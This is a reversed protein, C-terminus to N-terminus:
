RGTEAPPAAFSTDTWINWRSPCGTWRRNWLIRLSHSLNAYGKRLNRWSRWPFSMRCVRWRCPHTVKEFQSLAQGGVRQTPSGPLALEPYQAELEELQRLLRDYTYDEMQPDDLVYYRYNADELQQTLRRIEEQIETM